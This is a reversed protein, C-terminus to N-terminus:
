RAGTFGRFRSFHPAAPAQTTPLFSEPPPAETVAPGQDSAGPDIGITFGPLPASVRGPQPVEPGQAYDGVPGPTPYSVGDPGSGPQSTRGNGFDFLKRLFTEMDFQPAQQSPAYAVQSGNGVSTQIPGATPADAQWAQPGSPLVPSPMPNLGMSGQSQLLPQAVPSGAGVIKPLRLSLTRIAEQIPSGGKGAQGKQGAANLPAFNLGFNDPMDM